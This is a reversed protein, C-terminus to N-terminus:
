GAWGRAASRSAAPAPPPSGCMARRCFGSADAGPRSARARPISSHRRGRRRRRFLRGWPWREPAIACSRPRAPLPRTPPRGPRNRLASGRCAAYPAARAALAPASRRRRHRAAPAATCRPSHDRQTRTNSPSNRHAARARPHARARRRATRGPSSAAAARRARRIRAGGVPRDRGCSRFHAPDTGRPCRSSAHWSRPCHRASRRVSRVSRRPSRVARRIPRSAPPAPTRGRRSSRRRQASTYIWSGRHPPARAM